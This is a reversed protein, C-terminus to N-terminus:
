KVVLHEVQSACIDVAELPDPIPSIRLNDQISELTKSDRLLSILAKELESILDKNDEVLLACGNDTLIKANYYQHNNAATPLPVLISPKQLAIIEALSSAGSRAIIVQATKMLAYIDHAYDILEIQPAGNYIKKLMEYDRKGSIHLFNILRSKKTLKLAVEAAALNLRKAGQSGGFILINIGFNTTMEWYGEEAASAGHAFESRIPTGVLVAKKYNKDLPLGLLIKDVFFRSMKNSFGLRSNSEHIATKIGMFHACFVLPFSIYGGMGVCAVPKYSKILGRLYFYSKIFKKVFSFWKIPNISRPMGEFDIEHYFLDKEKLIQIASSNGKKIIFVVDHGRGVLKLGLAYGPYFHGGTGGAAIM